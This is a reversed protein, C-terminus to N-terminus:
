TSWNWPWPGQEIWTLLTLTNSPKPEEIGQNFTAWAWYNEMFNWGYSKLKERIKNWYISKRRFHDNICHESYILSKSNSGCSLPISSGNLRVLKIMELFHIRIRWNTCLNRPVNHFKFSINSGNFIRSFNFCYNRWDCQKVKMDLRQQICTKQRPCRSM